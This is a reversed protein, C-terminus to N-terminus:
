DDDDDDAETNEKKQVEMVQGNVASIQVENRDGNSSRIQFEYVAKGNKRELESKEVVGPVQQLAVQQAQDSTIQAEKQLKTRNIASAIAISVGSAIIYAVIVLIIKKRRM